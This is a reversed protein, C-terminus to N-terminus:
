KIIKDANVWIRWHGQTSEVPLEILYEWDGSPGIRHGVPYGFDALGDLINCQQFLFVHVFNESDTISCAIEFPPSNIQKELKVFM